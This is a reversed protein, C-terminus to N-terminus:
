QLYIYFAAIATFLLLTPLIANKGARYKKLTGPIFLFAIGMLFVLLFIILLTIMTVQINPSVLGSYLSIGLILSVLSLLAVSFIWGILKKRVMMITGIVGILFLLFTHIHDILDDIRISDRSDETLTSYDSVINMIFVAMMGITVFGMLLIIYYERGNLKQM